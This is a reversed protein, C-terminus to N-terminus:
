ILLPKAAVVLYDLIKVVNLDMTGTLTTGATSPECVGTLNNKFVAATAHLKLLRDNM